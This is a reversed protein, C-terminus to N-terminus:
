LVLPNPAILKRWDIEGRLGLKRWCIESLVPTLGLLSYCVSATTSFFIVRTHQLFIGAPVSMIIQLGFVHM